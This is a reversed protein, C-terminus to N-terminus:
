WFLDDPERTEDFREFRALIISWAIMMGIGIGFLFEM